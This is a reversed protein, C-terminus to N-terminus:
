VRKRKTTLVQKPESQTVFFGRAKDLTEQYEADPVSDAVIGAGAHYYVADPLCFATRILLSLESEGNFGLYGLAGTYPGRSVPELEDIIEMARFKPAGTISGGPFCYELAQCHSIDRRLHGEVTAVLHQVHAFQELRVLEPVTVSGYDCVRGLDNRLLDTIMLLEAREKPSRQLDRALRADEEPSTGRPRTGKIPRTQVHAGSMRLFLEPSASVIQFGGADHFASCPAPSIAELDRFLPWPGRTAPFCFRQSLNVQYIDGAQIYRLAREVAHVFTARTFTSVLGSESLNWDPKAEVLEADGNLVRPRASALECDREWADCRRRALAEDRRSDATLGTSVIWSRGSGHEFAVLSDYFGLCCEPLGLDDAARRRLKPEVFNKLPYGWYGFCGGAPFPLSLEEVANYRQMWQALLLWPNGRQEWCGRNHEPEFM